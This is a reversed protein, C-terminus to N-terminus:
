VSCAPGYCNQWTPGCNDNFPSETYGCDALTCQCETVFCVGGLGCDETNRTSHQGAGTGQGCDKGCNAATARVGNFGVLLLLGLVLPAYRM